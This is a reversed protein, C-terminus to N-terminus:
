GIYANKGICYKACVGEETAHFKSYSLILATPFFDLSIIGGM